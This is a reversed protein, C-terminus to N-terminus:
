EYIGLYGPHLLVDTGYLVGTSTANAYGETTTAFDQTRPLANSTQYLSLGTEATRARLLYQVGVELPVPASLAAYRWGTTAASLVQASGLVQGGPLQVIEVTISKATGSATCSAPKCAYGIMAAYTTCINLYTKFNIQQALSWGSQDPPACNGSGGGAVAGLYVRVGGVRSPTSVSFVNGYSVGPQMAASSPPADKQLGNWQTQAIAPTAVFLLALLLKKM